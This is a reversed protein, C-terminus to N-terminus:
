VEVHRDEVERLQDADRRPEVIRLQLELAVDLRDLRHEVLELNSSLALHSGATAAPPTRAQPWKSAPHTRSRERSTERGPRGASSAPNRIAWRESKWRPKGDRPSRATCRATRQVTARLGSRTSIEPSRRE